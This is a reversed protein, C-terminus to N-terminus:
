TTNDSKLKVSIKKNAKQTKKFDVLRINIKDGNSLSENCKINIKCDEKGLNQSFLLGLCAALIVIIIILLFIIIHNNSM